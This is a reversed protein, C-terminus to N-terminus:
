ENFLSSFPSSIKKRCQIGVPLFPHSAQNSFCFKHHCIITTSKMFYHQRCGKWKTRHSSPIYLAESCMVSWFYRFNKDVIWKVSCSLACTGWLTKPLSLCVDGSIINSSFFSKQWILFLIRNISSISLLFTFLFM